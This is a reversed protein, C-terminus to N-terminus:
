PLCNKLHNEQEPTLWNELTEESDIKLSVLSYPCGIRKPASLRKQITKHVFQQAEKKTEFIYNKHRGGTGRNHKGFAITVGLFGFLVKQAWIEYDRHINAEPKVARMKVHFLTM